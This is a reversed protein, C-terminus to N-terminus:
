LNYKEKVEEAIKWGMKGFSDEEYDELSGLYISDSDKYKLFKENNITIEELENRDIKWGNKLSNLICGNCFNGTSDKQCELSSCYNLAEKVVIIDLKHDTLYELGDYNIGSVVNYVTLRRGKIKPQNWCIAENREINIYM